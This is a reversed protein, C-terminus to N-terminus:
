VHLEVIDKDALVYDRPVSQGDFRASGWIRATKLREPFEKHIREALELVTTGRPVVFPQELDPEKGPEKSYVRIIDLKEFLRRRLVELNRGTTASVPLVELGPPAAERLFELYGEDGERDAKSALCMFRELPVSRVGPIELDPSRLIRRARCHELLAEMHALCDDSHLDVVLLILDTTQLMSVLGSPIGEETVPPTDVLQIWLDEYPMMGPVPVPTAFPYDAVTVRARTLAGVLASKGSNPFGLLVAQGAGERPVYFPNYRAARAKREGEDRLRSLRRKLDAQLKETGKHKPIVALM